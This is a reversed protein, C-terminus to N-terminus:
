EKVAGIYSAPPLHGKLYVPDKQGRFLNEPKFGAAIMEADMDMRRMGIAFPENANENFWNSMVQDIPTEPIPYGGDHMAVGGSALVRHCERFMGRIHPAPMEHTVLLSVVVDFYGDEFDLAAADQQSFHVAYGLSEARRHAYRVQPAGIDVGHVEADPFAEKWPLTTFGPGCGLDLIRRPQKDPFREKFFAATTAGLGENQSGLGGFAFVHVGRDYLAGAYVDDDRIETHFNGPMAHIDVSQIYRPIELDPNTRVTGLDGQRPRAEEILTDLQREISEGVTDWILEQAARGVLNGARFYFTEKLADSAERPSEPERGHKARFAPLVKEGYVKRTGPWIDTTFRKRLTSIFEERAFEDHTAQPLIAHRDQFM